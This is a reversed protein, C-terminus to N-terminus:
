LNPFTSKCNKCHSYIQMTRPRMAPSFDLKNLDNENYHKMYKNAAHQEACQGIIYKHEGSSRPHSGIPGLLQLTQQLIPHWGEQVPPHSFSPRKKTCERNHCICAMAPYDWYRTGTSHNNRVAQTHSHIIHKCYKKIEILPNFPM